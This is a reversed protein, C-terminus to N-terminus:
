GLKSKARLDFPSFLVPFKEQICYKYMAISKVRLGELSAVNDIVKHGQIHGKYWIVGKCVKNGGFVSVHKNWLIKM